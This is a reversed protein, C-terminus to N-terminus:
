AHAAEAPAPEAPTATVGRAPSEEAPTFGGQEKYEAVARTLQETLEDDLAKREAIAPLLEAYSSDLFRYLGKEFERIRPTPVDDLHGNTATWIIAVQQEVPVPEFQPQKLM